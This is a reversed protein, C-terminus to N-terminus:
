RREGGERVRRQPRAARCEYSEERVKVHEGKVVVTRTGDDRIANPTYTRAIVSHATLAQVSLRAVTM